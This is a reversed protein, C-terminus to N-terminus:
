IELGINIQIKGFQTEMDIAITQVSSIVFLIDQGFVISPPTLDTIVGAEALIASARGTIMNAIEGIASRAIDDFETVPMGMMMISALKKGAEQTLSYAINGRVDGVIGIISTIDMDVHMMDKKQIGGRRVDTIGFSELVSKLAEIFPNIFKIDM